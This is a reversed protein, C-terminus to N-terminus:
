GWLLTGYISYENLLQWRKYSKVGRWFRGSKIWERGREPLKRSYKGWFKYNNDTPPDTQKPRVEGYWQHM